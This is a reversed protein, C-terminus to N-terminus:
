TSPGDLNPADVTWLGYSEGRAVWIRGGDGSRLVEVVADAIYSPPSLSATARIADPVIATDIGGPCIANVRIGHAALGSLSRVLGVLAHKSAAYFPDFELPGLGATSATVVIDGGDPGLHALVALLGLVVGDLNVRMVRRYGAETLWDRVDGMEAEPTRTMVGANLHVVDLHGYTRVLEAVLQNWAGSDAVDLPCGLHQGPGDLRAAVRHAGEGDIDAVVVNAGLGALREATAAGM